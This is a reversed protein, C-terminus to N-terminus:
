EQPPRAIGPVCDVTYEVVDVGHWTLESLWVDPRKKIEVLKRSELYDLEQRVQKLTIPLAIDHLARWLITDATALPRGFYIARLLRWRAEERQERTLEEVM